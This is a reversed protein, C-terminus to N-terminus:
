RRPAEGLFEFRLFLIEFKPFDHQRFGAVDPKRIKCALVVFERSMEVARADNVGAAISRPEFACEWWPGAPKPKRPSNERPSIEWLQM